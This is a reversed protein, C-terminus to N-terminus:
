IGVCLGVATPDKAWACVINGNAAGAATSGLLLLALVLVVLAITRRIM